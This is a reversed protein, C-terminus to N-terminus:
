SQQENKSCSCSLQTSTSHIKRHTQTTDINRTTQKHHQQCLHKNNNKPSFQGFFRKTKPLERPGTPEADCSSSTASGGSSNTVKREKTNKKQNYLFCYNKAGPDFRSRSRCLSSSMTLRWALLPRNFFDKEAFLV